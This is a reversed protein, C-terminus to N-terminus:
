AVLDSRTKELSETQAAKDAISFYHPERQIEYLKIKNNLTTPKINLLRAAKIQVGDSQHLARRIL